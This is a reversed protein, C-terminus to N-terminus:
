NIKYQLIEASIITITIWNSVYIFIVRAFTHYFIELEGM